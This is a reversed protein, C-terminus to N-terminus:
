YSTVSRGGSYMLIGLVIWGHRRRSNSGRRDCNRYGRLAISEFGFTSEGVFHDLILYIGGM